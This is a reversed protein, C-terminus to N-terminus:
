KWHRRVTRVNIGLEKAIQEQTMGQEKMRQVDERTGTAVPRGLRKGEARARVLGAKTQEILKDREFQAFVSLMNRIMKGEASALDIAGIDLSHVSIGAALLWCGAALLKDITQQVDINDRGLRDIKTVILRDGKELKDFLANFKPRKSAQVSGSIVEEVIRHPEVAFGSNTIQIVQNVTTQETTSVRCYAFVRSM